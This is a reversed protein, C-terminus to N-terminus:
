RGICLPVRLRVQERAGNMVFCVVFAFRCMSVFMYVYVLTCVYVCSCVNVQEYAQGVTCASKILTHIYKYQMQVGMHIYEYLRAHLARTYVCTQVYTHHHTETQATPMAVQIDVVNFQSKNIVEGEKTRLICACVSM